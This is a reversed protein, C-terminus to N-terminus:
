KSGWYTSKWHANARWANDIMGGASIGNSPRHNEEAFRAAFQLANAGGVAALENGIRSMERSYGAQAPPRSRKQGREMRTIVANVVLLLEESLSSVQSLREAPTAPTDM